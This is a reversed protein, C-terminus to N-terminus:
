PWGKVTVLLAAAISAIALSWGFWTAWHYERRPSDFAVVLLAISLIVLLAINM